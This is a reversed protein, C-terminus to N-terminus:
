PVEKYTVELYPREGDRSNESSRFTKKCNLVDDSDNVLIVGYESWAGSYWNQVATTIDWSYYQGTKTILVSSEATVRRDATGDEGTVDSTTSCGASNWSANPHERYNWCVSGPEIAGDASGEVWDGLVRYASVSYNFTSDEDNCYLYMRASIIAKGAGLNTAIDKFRILSRRERGSSGGEGVPITTKFGYNFDEYEGSREYILADEVTGPYDDGTNDGFKVTDGISPTYDQNTQDSPVNSYTRNQPEFVYGDKIPVVTGSWGHGAVASYIGGSTVVPDGPLGTMTVDDLTGVSGSITYNTEIPTFDQNTQDLTVNSYELYNPGFTYGVKVPTVTGSWGHGAVASYIGGSTVVPDGPLGTMTVDDLTGVSGSITPLTFLIDDFYVNVATSDLPNNEYIYFQVQSVKGWTTDDFSSRPLTVEKWVNDQFGDMPLEAECYTGEPYKRLSVVIKEIKSTNAVKVQFTLNTVHEVYVYPDYSRKVQGYVEETRDWQIRVRMCKSGDPGATEEYYPLKADQGRTWNIRLTADDRYSEFDDVLIGKVLDLPTRNYYPAYSHCPAWACSPGHCWVSASLSADRDSTPDGSVHEETYWRFSLAPVNDTLEGHRIMVPNPYLTAEAEYDFTMPAGHVNHCTPCTMRSDETGDYDSDWSTMLCGYDFHIDHLESGYEARFNTVTGLIAMHCNLCLRMHDNDDPGSNPPPVDLGERLRYGVHYEKGPHPPRCFDVYQSEDAAYTRHNHDIHPQTLDHCVDCSLNAPFRGHGSVYYGYDLEGDLPENFDEGIVNPAYIGTGDAKSNAAEDDHCGACWKENGSKMTTGDSEYVGEAWGAKATAVGDFAGGESHCDDCVTTAALAEKDDDDGFFPFNNTDHCDGCAVATAPGRPVTGETHTAHSFATGDGGAHGHCVDCSQGGGHTFEDSHKHCPICNETVYHTHDGSSDNRHYATETHCVECVGNYPSVGWVYPGFVTDIPDGNPPINIVCKIMANNPCATCTTSEAGGGYHCVTCDEVHHYEAVAFTGSLAIMLLVSLFIYGSKLDKM